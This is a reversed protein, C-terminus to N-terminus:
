PTLYDHIQQVLALCSQLTEPTVGPSGTHLYNAYHDSEGDYFGILVVVEGPSRIIHRTVFRGKPEEDGGWDVWLNVTSASESYRVTASPPVMGLMGDLHEQPVLPCEGVPVPHVTACPLDPDDTTRKTDYKAVLREFQDVERETMLDPNGLDRAECAAICLGFLGPTGGQLHDCTEEVAPNEGDPTPQSIAQHIPSLLVLAAVGISSLYKKM